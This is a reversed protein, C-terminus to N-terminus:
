MNGDKLAALRLAREDCIRPDADITMAAHSSPYARAIRPM